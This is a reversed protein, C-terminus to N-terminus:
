HDPARSAITATASAWRSRGACPTARTSRGSQWANTVAPLPLPTVLTSNPVLAYTYTARSRSYDYAGRLETKPIGKLVDFSATWTHVREAADTSWDRTPDTSQPSPPPNGQRSKQLSACRDLDYPVGFAV